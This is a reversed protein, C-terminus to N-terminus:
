LKWTIEALILEYPKAAAAMNPQSHGDATALTLKEHCIMEVLYIFYGRGEGAFMFTDAESQIEEDTLGRGDEDQM